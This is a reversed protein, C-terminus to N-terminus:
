LFCSSFSKLNATLVDETGPAMLCPFGVERPRPIWGTWPSASTHQLQQTCHSPPCTLPSTLPYSGLPNQLSIYAAPKGHQPEQASCCGTEVTLKSASPHHLNLYVELEPKTACEQLRLRWLPLALITSLRLVVQDYHTRALWPICLWFRDFFYIRSHQSPLLSTLHLTPPLHDNIENM